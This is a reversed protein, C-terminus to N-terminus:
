SVERDHITREHGKLEVDRLCMLRMRASGVLPHNLIVVTPQDFLVVIQLFPPTQLGVIWVAEFDKVPPVRVFRYQSGCPPVVRGWRHPVKAPLNGSVGWVVHHMAAALVMRIIVNEREEVVLDPMVSIM